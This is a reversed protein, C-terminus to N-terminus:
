RMGDTKARGWVALRGDVLSPRSSKGDAPRGRDPFAGGAHAQSAQRTPRRNKPQNRPELRAKYLFVLACLAQNQTSAAVNGDVALYTLFREIEAAGMDKPHKKGHFLIYRRIWDCYTAETRISYHKRRIADRVQDLLRPPSDEM